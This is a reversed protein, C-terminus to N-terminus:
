DKNRVTHYTSVAAVWRRYDEMREHHELRYTGDAHLEVAARGIEFPFCRAQGATQYKVWWPKKGTKREVVAWRGGTFAGFDDVTTAYGYIPEALPQESMFTEYGTDRKFKEWAEVQGVIDANTRRFDPWDLTGLNALHCAKHVVDGRDRARELNGEPVGEFDVFGTAKLVTTVGPLDRGQYEYRHGEAFFEPICLKSQLPVPKLIM